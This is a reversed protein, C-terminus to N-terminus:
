SGGGTPRVCDGQVDLGRRARSLGPRPHTTAFLRSPSRDRAHPVRERRRPARASTAFIPATLFAHPQALGSLEVLREALEIRREDVETATLLRERV